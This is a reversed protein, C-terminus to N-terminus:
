GQGSAEEHKDQIGAHKKEKTPSFKKLPLPSFFHNLAGTGKGIYIDSGQCIAQRVYEKAQRVADPLEVGEACLAAIASSLTCGTGHTNRSQIRTSTFMLPDSAPPVLLMDVMDDGELHGGKLLVGHNGWQCLHRIGNKMEEVNTFTRGALVEAERLNPTILTCLPFLEHKMAELAEEDMMAEGASSAMVPDCIVTTIQRHRLEGAIARVISANGLMGIKVADPHLDDMVARVQSAVVDAPVPHISKVGRTDQVTIATIATAAYAGLASITKVDAQIGAGGCSDSGAISLVVPYHFLETM